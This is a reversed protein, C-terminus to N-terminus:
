LTQRRNGHAEARCTVFSNSLIRAITAHLSESTKTRIPRDKRVIGSAARQQFPGRKWQEVALSRM